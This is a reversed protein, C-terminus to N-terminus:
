TEKSGLKLEIRSLQASVSAVLAHTQDMRQAMYQTETLMRDRERDDREALQSLAVAVKQQAEVSSHQADVMKDLFTGAMILAPLGLVLAPGWLKLVDGAEPSGKLLGIFALVVALGVGAAGPFVMAKLWSATGGKAMDALTM